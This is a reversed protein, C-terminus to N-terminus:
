SDDEVIRLDEPFQSSSVTRYRRNRRERIYDTVAFPKDCWLVSPGLLVDFHPAARDIDYNSGLISLLESAAGKEDETTAEDQAVPVLHEALEMCDCEPPRHENLWWEDTVFELIADRAIQISTRQKMTSMVYLEATRTPQFAQNHM